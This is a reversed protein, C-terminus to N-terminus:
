GGCKQQNKLVKNFEERTWPKFTAQEQRLSTFEQKTKRDMSQITALLQANTVQEQQQAQGPPVNGQIPSGETPTVVVDVDWENIPVISLPIREMPDNGELPAHDNHPGMFDSKIGEVEICLRFFNPPTKM